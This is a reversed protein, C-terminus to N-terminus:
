KKYTLGNYSNINESDEYVEKTILKKEMMLPLLSRNKNLDFLKAKIKPILTSYFKTSQEKTLTTVIPNELDSGYRITILAMEEESLSNLVFDIQEKTYDDLYEYITQIRSMKGNRLFKKTGRNEKGIRARKTKCTLAKDPNQSYEKLTQISKSNRIKKLAKKEIQRIREGSLEFKESVEKLTAPENNYFGFRLMLVKKERDTLDSTELAQRVDKKMCEKILFDDLPETDAQIFDGLEEELEEGILVNTSLTNTIMVSKILSMLQKIEVSSLNMEKIIEEISLTRNLKLELSEKVNNFQRLKELSNIPIRINRGKNDIARLIFQKIWYMAYTSFAFGMSPDYKEAARMLGLNGEQILDDLDLGKNQYKKAMPIVLRLNKEVLLRKMEDDSVFGDNRLEQNLLVPDSIEKYYQKLSDVEAKVYSDELKYDFINGNDVKM